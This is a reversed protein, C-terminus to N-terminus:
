NTNKKYNSVQNQMAKIHQEQQNIKEEQIAVVAELETLLRSQVEVSSKLLTLNLPQQLGLSPQSTWQVKREAIALRKALADKYVELSDFQHRLEEASKQLMERQVTFVQGDRKLDAWRERVAAGKTRLESLTKSFASLSDVINEMREGSYITEERLASALQLLGHSLIDAQEPPAFLEEPDRGPSKDGPCLGPFCFCLQIIHSTKM